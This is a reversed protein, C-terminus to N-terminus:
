GEGSAPLSFFVDGATIRLAGGTDQDLQLAGDADLDRFVGALTRDTLRVTIPGGLGHAGDLWGARIATFGESRWIALWRQLHRVV